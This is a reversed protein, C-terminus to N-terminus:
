GVHIAGALVGAALTMAVFVAVVIAAILAVTHPAVIMSQSRIMTREYYDLLYDIDAIEDEITALRATHAQLEAAHDGRWDNNEIVRAVTYQEQQLANHRRRMAAFRRLQDMREGWSGGDGRSVGCNM